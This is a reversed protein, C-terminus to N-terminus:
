DLVMPFGGQSIAPFPDVGWLFLALTTLGVSMVRMGALSSGVIKFVALDRGHSLVFARQEGLSAYFRQNLRFSNQYVFEDEAERRELDQVRRLCASPSLGVREALDDLVGVQADLLGHRQHELLKVSQATNALGMAPKVLLSDFQRDVLRETTLKLQHPFQWANAKDAIHQVIGQIGAGIHIAATRDLHHDFPTLRVFALAACLRGLLGAYKNRVM